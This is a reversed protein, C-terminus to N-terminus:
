VLIKVSNDYAGRVYYRSSRPVCQKPVFVGQCQWDPPCDDETRCFIRADVFSGTLLLLLLQCVVNPSVTTTMTAATIVTWTRRPAAMAPSASRTYRRYRAAHSLTTSTAEPQESPLNSRAGYRFGRGSVTWSASVSPAPSLASNYRPSNRAAARDIM